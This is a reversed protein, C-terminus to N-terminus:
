VTGVFFICYRSQLNVFFKKSAAPTLYDFSFIFRGNRSPKSEM